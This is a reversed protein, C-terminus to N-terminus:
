KEFVLIFSLVSLTLYFLLQIAWMLPNLVKKTLLIVSHEGTDFCLNLYYIEKLYVEFM